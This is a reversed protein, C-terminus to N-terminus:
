AGGFFDEFLRSVEDRLAIAPLREATREARKPLLSM